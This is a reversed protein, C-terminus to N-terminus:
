WVSQYIEKDAFSNIYYHRCIDMSNYATLEPACRPGFKPILQVFRAITEMPIIDGQQVGNRELRSVGYMIIDKEATSRPPSFWQVYAFYQNHLSVDTEVLQLRFIL